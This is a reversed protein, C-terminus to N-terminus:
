RHDEYMREVNGAIERVARILCDIDQDTNMASVSARITGFGDTGMARHILPACHLGARVRIGYSGELIYAADASKLGDLTFSLVPGCKKAGGYLNVGEIADLGERLRNMLAQEKRAIQEVGEELVFEVGAKLAAIGPLNQTGPEFEYDGAEYTLRSSDRGTGGYRYPLFSIGKRVYYGGTGQPGFLSKHGTFILADVGWADVDVPICGASQAADLVLLTGHRHAIEALARVDQIMGTVNSCHNVFVAATDADLMAEAKEPDVWGAEDCPVIDVRGVRDRHNLLPRLISNHETQTALVRRGQLPLGCIVANAADTAGSSFFIREFDKANLLAGLEKRCAEMADTEELSAGGRFQGAPVASLALGHAELVRPPKPWSSAAQNLYIM